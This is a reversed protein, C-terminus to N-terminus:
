GRYKDLDVDFRRCWRQIQQRAKGMRKATESLNGRTEKLVAMLEAYLAEDATSLPPQTKRPVLSNREISAAVHEEEISDDNTLVLATAICQQLERINLPWDHLFLRRAAEVRLRLEREPAHRRM